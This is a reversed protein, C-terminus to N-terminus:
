RNRACGTRLCSPRDREERCRLRLRGFGSKLVVRHEDPMGVRPPRPQGSDEFGQHLGAVVFSKQEPQRLCLEIGNERLRAAKRLDSRKRRM